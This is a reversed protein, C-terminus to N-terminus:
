VTEDKVETAMLSNPVVIMDTLPQANIHEIATRNEFKDLAEDESEAEVYDKMVVTETWTVEYKKMM